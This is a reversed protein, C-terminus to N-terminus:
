MTYTVLAALRGDVVAFTDVFRFWPEGGARELRGEAAVYADADIGGFPDAEDDDSGNHADTEASGVRYVREIVHTTDTDPREDRMFRVFAEASELTRDPRHQVFDDALLDRLEGYAGDDITRYYDRALAGSDAPMHRPGDASPMLGAAPEPIRKHLVPM